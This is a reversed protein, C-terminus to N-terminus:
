ELLYELGSTVKGVCVSDSPLENTGETHVRLVLTHLEEKELQQVSVAGKEHCGKSKETFELVPNVATNVPMIKTSGKERQLVVDDWIKKDIQELLTSVAHPADDSLSVIFRKDSEDPLRLSVQVPLDGFIRNIRDRANLQIRLQLRNLDDIAAKVDRELEEKSEEHIDKTEAYMKHAKKAAKDIWMMQELIHSREEDFQQITKKHKHVRHHGDFVVYSLGLLIILQLLNSLSLSSRIRSFFKKPNSQRMLPHEYNHSQSHSDDDWFESFSDELSVPIRRKLHAPPSRLEDDTWLFPTEPLEHDNHSKFRRQSTTESSVSNTSSFQHQSPQVSHNSSGITQSEKNRRRPRTKNGGFDYTAQPAKYLRSPPKSVNRKLPSSPSLRSTTLSSQM